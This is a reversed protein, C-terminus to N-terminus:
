AQLTPRREASPASCVSQALAEAMAARTEAVVIHEDFREEALRRSERGMAARTVPPLAAFAAMAEALAAADRPAFLYGNRGPRIAERCGPVDSAILPRGMAAAELLARSTGERYSPLVVAHAKAVLPRVDAAVGWDAVTGGAIAADLAPLPGAAPGLVACRIGSAAMQRAAAVFEGLGKEVLRRGVFLLTPPGEEPLPAPAFRVLDVGSGPVLRTREPAVLRDAVFTNRDDANQFFVTAARAFALRYLPRVVRRAPGATLFATGLGTVTAVAPVGCLRAAMAGYINPKITYTLVIDPRERRILAVLRMFLALDGAPSTGRPAMAVPVTRCGLAELEAMEPAPPAAALVDVGDAVLDAILRRRFNVLNWAANAVVLVRCARPAHM